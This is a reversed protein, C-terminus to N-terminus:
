NGHFCFPLKACQREGENRDKVVGCGRTGVEEREGGERRGEEGGERRGGERGEECTSWIMGSDM